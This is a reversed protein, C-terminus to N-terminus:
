YGQQLKKDYDGAWAYLLMIPYCIAATIAMLLISIVALPSILFNVARKIRKIM